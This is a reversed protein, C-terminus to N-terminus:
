GIMFQAFAQVLIDATGATKKVKVWKYTETAAVKGQATIAAGYAVGDTADAPKPDANSVMVQFNDTGFTGLFTISYPVNWQGSDQWTGNGTAAGTYLTRASPSLEMSM